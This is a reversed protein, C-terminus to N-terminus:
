KLCSSSKAFKGWLFLFILTMGEALGFSAWVGWLGFLRGLVVACLAILVCGRLLSAITVLEGKDTASFYAILVINFGAFLFGLFYIRIGPYAYKLLQQNGESNFIGILSDTFGWTIFVILLALIGAIFLGKRLLERVEEGKNKGYNQSILPQLGQAVGNFIAMAVLAINAVVGYAAVGVTGVLKLILGNFILTIMGSSFEGVFSSMGILACRLLRKFFLGHFAFGVGNKKGLFHCTCIAMTVLPSAVTALAAGVFGMKMPFLFIYDFVINFASGMLAAFMSIGPAHDNRVFATFSYNCMFLPAACFICTLYNKGLDVLKQNAGLLRLIEEPFLVGVVVFPLGFLFSWALSHLFCDDAQKGASVLIQYRTASGIGIMSGIAFILGFLPLILNLTALGQAGFKKSIFFTDALIYISVGIMAIVSLSLYRAIKKNM